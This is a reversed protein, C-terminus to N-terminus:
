TSPAAASEASSSRGPRSPPGAASTLQRPLTPVPNGVGRIDKFLQGCANSNLKEAITLSDMAVNAHFWTCCSRVDLRLLESVPGLQAWLPKGQFGGSRCIFMMKYNGMSCLITFVGRHMYANTGDISMTACKIPLGLVYNLPSVGISPM